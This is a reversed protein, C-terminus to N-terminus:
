RLSHSLVKRRGYRGFNREKKWAEIDESSQGIDSILVSFGIICSKELVSLVSEGNALSYREIHEYLTDDINITMSKM